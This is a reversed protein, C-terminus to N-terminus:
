NLFIEKSKEIENQLISVQLEAVRLKGESVSLKHRLDNREDRLKIIEIEHKTFIRM